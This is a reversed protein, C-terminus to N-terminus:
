HHEVVTLAYEMQGDRKEVIDVITPYVPYDPIVGRDKYKAEKVALTYKILPIRCSIQTNPLTVMAEGGSTNGYYGGGVEEGIFLGRRNSKAIAAFEATASFSRGDMLFYVRGGFSNEKPQQVRLDHDESETIKGKSTEQSAYYMFPKATLYSYLIEGNHDYGGQNRRGDIILKKVKKARIDNFASDLFGTYNEGTQKLFDDYFTKITLIAINDSTYRLQLYKTPRPFPGPTLINKLLDARLTAQMVEGAKSRYTIDFSDKVGYMTNYLLPFFEPMEWNKRSQIRGDTTIYQFLRRIILDMSQGNISLLETEALGDNQKCAYIFAKDHIFMVMAPFIRVSSWYEDTVRGPLRCNAHGDGIAAIAFSTLAYFDTVGMSDQITAFCSDFVHDITAKSNYRYLAPHIKQMTDRLLM